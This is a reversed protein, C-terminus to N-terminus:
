VAEMATYLLRFVIGLREGLLDLSANREDVSM